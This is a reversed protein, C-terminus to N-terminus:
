PPLSPFYKASDCTITISSDRSKQQQKQERTSRNGTEPKPLFHVAVEVCHSLGECCAHFTQSSTLLSPRAIDKREKYVQCSM